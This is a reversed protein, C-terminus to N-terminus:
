FSSLFFILDHCSCQGDVLTVSAQLGFQSMMLVDVTPVSTASEVSFPSCPLHVPCSSKCHRRRRPLLAGVITNLVPALVAPACADAVVVTDLALALLTAPRRYALMVAFPAHALYAPACADAVVVTM